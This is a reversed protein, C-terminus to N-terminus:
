SAHTSTLPDNTLVGQKQKRGECSLDGPKAAPEQLGM